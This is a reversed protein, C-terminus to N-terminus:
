TLEHKEPCFIIHRLEPLHFIPSFDTISLYISIYLYWSIVYSYLYLSLYRALYISLYLSLFIYLSVHFLISIPNERLKWLRELYISSYISLPISLYISWFNLIPNCQSVLDLDQRLCKFLITDVLYEKKEIEKKREYSNFNCSYMM